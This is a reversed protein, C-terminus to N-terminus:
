VSREYWYLYNQYREKYMDVKQPNPTVIEGRKRELDFISKIHGVSELAIAAAGILSTHYAGDMEMTLDFIDCAMQTWISSHLIGGSIKVAAPVGQVKILAQYCQYLSYLVGEQVARYMDHTTHYPKIGMFGGQRDDRWGPSREGFLFPLFVPPPYKDSYGSEAKRYMGAGFFNEIAWDICNCFGVVSGGCLWSKPSLYCWTEMQDSITPTSTSLRLAGSTGGSFTMIGYNLANSGVQNSAGDAIAPLVPIGPSLGLLHAGEHSLPQPENYKVIRGLNSKDIGLEKLTYTDYQKRHINLLGSGSAVVDSVVWCDTLRYISYTGQGLINYDSLNYGLKEKLYKLKFFPYTNNVMCGTRKYYDKVYGADKKLESCIASFASHNWQYMYTAPEMNKHCLMVSHWTCCLSIAVVDKNRSVSRGVEITTSFIHEPDYAGVEKTQTYAKSEVTYTNNVIDFLMAKASTTSSELVLIYMEVEQPKAGFGVLPLAGQGWFQPLNLSRVTKLDPPKGICNPCQGLIQEFIKGLLAPELIVM